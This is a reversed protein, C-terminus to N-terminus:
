AAIARAHQMVGAVAPANICAYPPRSRVMGAGTNHPIGGRPTMQILPFPDESRYRSFNGLQWGATPVRKFAQNVRLYCHRPLFDSSTKLGFGHRREFNSPQREREGRNHADRHQQDILPQPSSGAENAVPASAM